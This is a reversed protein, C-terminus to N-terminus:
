RGTDLLSTSMEGTFILSTYFLHLDYIESSSVSLKKNLRVCKYM